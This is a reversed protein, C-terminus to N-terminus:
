NSEFMDGKMHLEEYISQEDTKVVTIRSSNNSLNMTQVEVDDYISIADDVGNAESNKSSNSKNRLRRHLRQIVFLSMMGVFIGCICTILFMYWKAQM